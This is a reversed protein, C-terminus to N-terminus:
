SPARAEDDGARLLFLLSFFSPPAAAAAADSRAASSAARVMVIVEEVVAHYKSWGNAHFRLDLWRVERLLLHNRQGDGVGLPVIEGDLQQVKHQSLAPWHDRRDGQDCSPMIVVVEEHVSAAVVSAV